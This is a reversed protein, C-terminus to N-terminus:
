RSAPLSRRARDLLRATSIRSDTDADVIVFYDFGRELTLEAARRLLYVEVRERSTFGIDQFDVRFTNTDLRTESFGGTLGKPQYPTACATRGGRELLPPRLYSPPPALLRGHHGQSARQEGDREM